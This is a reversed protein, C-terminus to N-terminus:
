PLSICSNITKIVYNLFEKSTKKSFSKQSSSDMVHLSIGRQKCLKIKKCDKLKTSNLKKDGYIPKYHVIGNIEFALNLSPIYIDLELNITERDNFRFSISPYNLIVQSQIYKELKSVPGKNKLDKNFINNFSARCSKNCFFRKHKSIMIKSPNLVLDNKCWRCSSHFKCYINITYRQVNTQAFIM